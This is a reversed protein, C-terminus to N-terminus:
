KVILIVIKILNEENKIKKNAYNFKKFFSLFNM